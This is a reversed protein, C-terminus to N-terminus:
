SGDVFHLMQGVYQDLPAISYLVVEMAKDPFGSELTIMFMACIDKSDDAAWYLFNHSNLNLLLRTLGASDKAKDVNLYSGKSHPYIKFVVTNDKSVGVVVEFFDEHTLGDRKVGVFNFPNKESQRFSINIGRKPGAAELMVRLKDRTAARLADEQQQSQAKGLITGFAFSIVLVTLTLTKKM